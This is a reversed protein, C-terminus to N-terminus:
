GGSKPGRIRFCDAFTRLAATRVREIANATMLEMVERPNAQYLSAIKAMTRRFDEDVAYRFFAGDKGTRELLGRAVLREVATEIIAPPFGVKQAIDVATALTAQPQGSFWALVELDEYGEVHELLFQKLSERDTPGSM